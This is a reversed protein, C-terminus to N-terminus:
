KMMKGLLRSKMDGGGGSGIGYRAKVKARIAQVQGPSINGAAESRPALQVAKMAHIRDNIPFRGGPLAFSSSPLAARAKSSLVGM